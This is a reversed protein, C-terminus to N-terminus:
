QFRTKVLVNVLRKCFLLQVLGKFTDEISLQLGRAQLPNRCLSVSEIVRRQWFLFAGLFGRPRKRKRMIGVTRSYLVSGLLYREPLM